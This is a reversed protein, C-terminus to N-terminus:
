EVVVSKSVTYEDSQIILYYFGRHVGSFDIIATARGTNKDYEINAEGMEVERGLYDSCRIRATQISSNTAFFEINATTRVPNPAISSFHLTIRGETEDVSTIDPDVLMFGNMCQIYIEKVGGQVPDILLEKPSRVEPYDRFDLSFIEDRTSNYKDLTYYTTFDGMHKIIFWFNGNRDFEFSVINHNGDDNKYKDRFFETREFNEGDFSILFTGIEGETYDNTVFWIKDDYIRFKTSPLIYGELDNLYKSYDYTIISNGNIKCLQKGGANFYFNGKYYVMPNGPYFYNVQDGVIEFERIKAVGDKLYGIKNPGTKNLFIYEGNGDTAMGFIQSKEIESNKHNYNHWENGDFQIIGMNSLGMTIHENNVLIKSYPKIGPNNSIELDLGNPFIDLFQYETEISRASLINFAYYDDPIIYLKGNYLNSVPSVRNLDAEGMSTVFEVQANAAISYFFILFFVLSLKMKIEKTLNVFKFFYFVSSLIILLSDFLVRKKPYM